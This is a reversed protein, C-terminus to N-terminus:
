LHKNNGNSVPLVDKIIPANDSMIDQTVKFVHLSLNTIM